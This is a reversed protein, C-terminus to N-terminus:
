DHYFTTRINYAQLCSHFDMFKLHVVHDKWASLLHRSSAHSKVKKGSGQHQQVKRSHSKSHTKQNGPSASRSGTIMCVCLAIHTYSSRDLHKSTPILSSPHTQSCPLCTRHWQKRQWTSMVGGSPLKLFSQFTSSAILHLGMEFM